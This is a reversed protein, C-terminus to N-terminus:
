IESGADDKDELKGHVQIATISKQTMQLHSVLYVNLFKYDQTVSCLTM